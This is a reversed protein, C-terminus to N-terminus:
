IEEGLYIVDGERAFRTNTFIKSAQKEAERLWDDGHEPAHHTILLRAAGSRQALRCGEQWTSHGWGVHDPYEIEDYMGDYCILDSDKTWQELDECGREYDWVLCITKGELQLKILMGGDPHFSERFEATVGERLAIREPLRVTLMQGLQPTVPWFPPRLAQCLTEQGQWCDFASFFRLEADAPLAGPMLLGLIHDYHVHTLLIDVARCGRLAEGANRLGTGCDIVVAYDGRRLVYCTTTGGFELYDKGSVPISGRCGCVYLKM